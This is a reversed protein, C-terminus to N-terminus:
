DTFYGRLHGFNTESDTGTAHVLVLGPGNGEATYQVPSSHVFVTPM